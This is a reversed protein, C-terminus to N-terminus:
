FFFIYFPQLVIVRALRALFTVSQLGAHQAQAPHAASGVVHQQRVAPDLGDAVGHVAGAVAGAHLIFSAVLRWDAQARGSPGVGVVGRKNVM